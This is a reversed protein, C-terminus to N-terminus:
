KREDSGSGRKTKRRRRREQRRKQWRKGTRGEERYKGKKLM